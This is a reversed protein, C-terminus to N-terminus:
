KSPRIRFIMKAETFASRSRAMFASGGGGFFREGPRGRLCRGCSASSRGSAGLGGSAAAADVVACRRVRLRRSGRAAFGDNGSSPSLRPGALHGGCCNILSAQYFTAAEGVRSTVGQQLNDRAHLRHRDTLHEILRGNATEDLFRFGAVGLNEYGAVAAGFRRNPRRGQGSLRRENGLRHALDLMQFFAQGGCFRAVARQEIKAAVADPVDEVVGM